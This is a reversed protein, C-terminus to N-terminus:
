STTFCRHARMSTVATKVVMVLCASQLALYVADAAAAAATAAFCITLFCFPIKTNIHATIVIIAPSATKVVM